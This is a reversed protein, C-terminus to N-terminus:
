GVRYSASAAALAAELVAPAQSAGRRSSVVRSPPPPTPLRKAPRRQARGMAVASPGSLRADSATAYRAGRANLHGRQAVAAVLRKRAFPPVAGPSPAQGCLCPAPPSRPAGPAGPFLPPRTPPFPRRWSAS